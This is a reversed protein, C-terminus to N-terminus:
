SGMRAGPRICPGITPDSMGVTIEAYLMCVFAVMVLTMSENEANAGSEKRRM